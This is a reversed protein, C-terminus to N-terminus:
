ENRLSKAPNILASKISQRSVALMAIILVIASSIAFLWWSLKIKYAFNNLWETIFYNAVPLTVIIAILILWIYEKSLMAVINFVSAGLLKRIGIEKTRLENNYVSLAILGLCAILVALISFLLFLQKLNNESQYMFNLQDDLFNYLMIAGPAINEIEKQISAVTEKVNTGDIRILMNDVWNPRYEIVLPEIDYHLSAFNYNKVVGVIKGRARSWSNEAETGIPDEIGLIEVLKENVIFAVSTDTRAQFNRGEVLEIGVSPIFGEDARIFRMAPLDMEPDTGQPRLTEVSLNNGLFRSANGVSKIGPKKMLENRFVDKKMVAQEWLPGYIQISIVKEKEFGIEQDHLFTMQKFVVITATIIFISISFQFAVLIKRIKVVPSTPLKTGKIALIPHSGSILFAPFGSSSLVIGFVMSILILINQWKFFTNTVLNVGAIDNYLPLFTYCVVLALLGSVVTILLGEGFFQLFIQQRSAGIVKKLGIERSRKIIQATFLNIFNLCAITIILFALASLIYIYLVDSNQGMEQERDSYLHINKVPHFEFRWEEQEIEERTASGESFKVLFDFLRNDMNHIRQGERLLVYTYVSMWGRRQQMEDSISHLMTPLSILYQFNLHTNGPLDAMVGTVELDEMGGIKISKGIPNEAKFLKTAISENLVITNPRTLATEPSGYIFEFNFISLLSQEGYLGERVPIHIDNYILINTQRYQGFRGTKEIEPFAKELEAAFPLSSKAWSNSAARFIREHESFDKEYSLEYQIHILLYFSASIGLVLGFANTLTYSKNKLTNRYAIKLLSKFM